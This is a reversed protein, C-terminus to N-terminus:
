KTKSAMAEYSRAYVEAYTALKTLVFAELDKVSSDSVKQQFEPNLFGFEEKLYTKMMAIQTKMFQATIKTIEVPRGDPTLVTETRFALETAPVYMPYYLNNYFTMLDLEAWSASGKAESDHSLTALKIGTEEKLQARTKTFFDFGYCSMDILYDAPVRTMIVVALNEKDVQIQFENGALEKPILFGGMKCGAQATPTTAMTLLSLLTVAFLPFTKM